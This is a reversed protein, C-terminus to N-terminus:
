QFILIIELYQPLIIREKTVKVHNCHLMEWGRSCSGRDNERQRDRARARACACACVCACVCVCVCVHVRVPARACTIEGGVCMLLFTTACCTSLILRQECLEYVYLM